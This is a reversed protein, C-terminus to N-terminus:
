EVIYDLDNDDELHSLFGDSSGFVGSLEFTGDCNEPIKWKGKIAMENNKRTIRGTYHVVHQGLYKKNFNMVGENNCEGLIIFNGCDDNGLGHVGNSDVMMSLAMDTKTEGYEFFGTWDQSLKQLEFTGDCNDPISWTGTITGGSLSGTYEVAHAGDYQKTFTVESSDSIAGTITFNGCDDNGFGNLSGDLNFNLKNLNM